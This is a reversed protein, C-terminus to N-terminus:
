GLRIASAGGLHGVRVTSTRLVWVMAVVCQTRPRSAQSTLPHSSLPGEKWGAVDPEATSQREGLHGEDGV